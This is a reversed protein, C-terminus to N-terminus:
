NDEKDKSNRHESVKAGCVGCYAHSWDTRQSHCFPCLYRTPNEKIWTGEKKWVFSGLDYRYPQTELEFRHCVAYALHFNLQLGMALDKSMSESMELPKEGKDWEATKDSQNVKTVFVPGQETMIFVYWYNKKKAM